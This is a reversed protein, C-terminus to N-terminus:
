LEWDREYDELVDQRQKWDPLVEGVTRWFAPSHNRHVLHCVEHAVVYELVTKPLEILEPNLRVIQDKGCSAWMNKMTVVSVGAVEVGVREAYHRGFRQGDARLQHEFWQALLMKVVQARQEKAVGRPLTVYLRSRYAVFGTNARGAKVELTLWRGRFRVKSGALYSREREGKGGLRRSQTFVWRRKANVFEHAARMPEGMPLVVEVSNPVVTIRKKKARSSKRIRYPIKTSGISLVGDNTVLRENSSDNSVLRQSTSKPTNISQM